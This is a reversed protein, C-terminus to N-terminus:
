IFIRAVRVESDIHNNLELINEPQVFDWQGLINRVM